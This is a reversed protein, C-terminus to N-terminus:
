REGKLDIDENIYTQIDSVMKDKLLEEYFEYLISLETYEKWIIEFDIVGTKLHITKIKDWRKCTEIFKDYDYESHMRLNSIFPHTKTSIVKDEFNKLYFTTFTRSFEKYLIKKVKFIFDINSSDIRIIIDKPGLSKFYEIKYYEETYFKLEKNFIYSIKKLDGYIDKYIDRKASDELKKSIEIQIIANVNNKKSFKGDTDDMIKMLSFSSEYYKINKEDLKPYKFEYLNTIEFPTDLKRLYMYDYIGLVRGQEMDKIQKDEDKFEICPIDKYSNLRDIRFKIFVMSYPQINEVSLLKDSILKELTTRHLKKRYEYRHITKNEKLAEFRKNWIDNFHKPIEIYDSKSENNEFLSLINIIINQNERFFDSISFYLREIINKTKKYDNYFIHYDQYVIDLSSSTM